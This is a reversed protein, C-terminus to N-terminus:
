GNLDKSGNYTGMLLIDRQRPASHPRRPLVQTGLLWIMKEAKLVFDAQRGDELDASIFMKGMFPARGRPMSDLSAQDVRNEKLEPQNTSQAPERDAFYRIGYEVPDRRFEFQDLRGEDAAAHLLRRILLKGQEEGMLEEVLGELNREISHHVILRCLPSGRAPRFVSPSRAPENAM